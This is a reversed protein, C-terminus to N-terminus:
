GWPLSTTGARRPISRVTSAPSNVARAPGEPEPLVVRSLRIPQRSRGVAPRSTSAPRSTVWSPGFSNAATRRRLMWACYHHGMAGFGAAISFLLGSVFPIRADGTGLQGVYLPLVPGFSRDVFQLGFIVLAMLLFNEFALVDRFTVPRGPENPTDPRAAHVISEDYTVFVLVLAFLYCGAAVFFADRLGVIAAVTGGFVPGM